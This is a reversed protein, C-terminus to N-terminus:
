KPGALLQKVEQIVIAYILKSEKSEVEVQMKSLICHPKKHMEVVGKPKPAWIKEDKSYDYSTLCKDEKWLSFTYTNERGNHQVIQDYLSPRDLLIHTVNM